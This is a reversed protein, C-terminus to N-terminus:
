NSHNEKKHSSNTHTNINSIITIIMKIMMTMIMHSCGNYFTKVPFHRNGSTENWIKSPIVYLHARVRLMYICLAIWVYICVCVYTLMCVCTCVRCSADCSWKWVRMVKLEPWVGNVQPDRSPSHCLNQGAETLASASWTHIVTNIRIDTVTNTLLYTGTYVNTYVCLCVCACTHTHTDMPDTRYVDQIYM